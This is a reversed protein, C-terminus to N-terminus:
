ELERIIQYGYKDEDELLALVLLTNSGPFAPDNKKRPM